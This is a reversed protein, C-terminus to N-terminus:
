RHQDPWAGDGVVGRSDGPTIARGRRDLYVFIREAFTKHQCARVPVGCLPLVGDGQGHSILAATREALGGGDRHLLPCRSAQASNLVPWNRM